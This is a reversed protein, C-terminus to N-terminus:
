FRINNLRTALNESIINNFRNFLNDTFINMCVTARKIEHLDEEQMIISYLSSHHEFEERIQEVVAGSSQLYYYANTMQTKWVRCWHRSVELENEVIYRVDVESSM